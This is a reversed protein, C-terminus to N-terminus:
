LVERRHQREEHAADNTVGRGPPELRSKAGARLPRQLERLLCIQASQLRQATSAGPAQCAGRGRCPRRLPPPLPPRWTRRPGARGALLLPFCSRRPRLRSPRRGHGRDRHGLGSRQGARASLGHRAAAAAHLFHWLRLRGAFADRLEQRLLGFPLRPLRQGELSQRIGATAAPRRLGSVRQELCGAGRRHRLHSAAVLCAPLRLLGCHSGPLLM